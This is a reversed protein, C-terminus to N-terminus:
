ILKTRLAMYVPHTVHCHGMRVNTVNVPLTGDNQYISIIFSIYLLFNKKFM